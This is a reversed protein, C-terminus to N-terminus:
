TYITMLWYYRLFKWYNEWSNRSFPRTIGWSKGVTKLWIRWLSTIYLRRLSYSKCVQSAQYLGQKPGFCRSSAQKLNDKCSKSFLVSNEKNYCQDVDCAFLFPPGIGHISKYAICESNFLCANHFSSPVRQMNNYSVTCTQNNSCLKELPFHLVAKHRTSLSPALM